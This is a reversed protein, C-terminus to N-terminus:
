MQNCIVIDDLATKADPDITLVIHCNSGALHNKQGAIVQM